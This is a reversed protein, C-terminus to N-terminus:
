TKGFIRPSAPLRHREPVMQSSKVKQSYKKFSFSTAQTGPVAKPAGLKTRRETAAESLSM